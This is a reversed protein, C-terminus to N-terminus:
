EQVEVVGKVNLAIRFEEVPIIRQEDGDQVLVCNSKEDAYPVGEFYPRGSKRQEKSAPRRASLGDYWVLVKVPRGQYFGVSTLAQGVYAVGADDGIEEDPLILDFVKEERYSLIADRVRRAADASIWQVNTSDKRATQMSSGVPEGDFYIANLGVHTDTCLWNFIPYSQLRSQLEEPENWDYNIGLAECIEELPASHRWPDPAAPRTVNRIADILKM